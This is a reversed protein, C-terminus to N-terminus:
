LKHGWTGCVMEHIKYVLTTDDSIGHSPELCNMTTTYSWLKIRKFKM